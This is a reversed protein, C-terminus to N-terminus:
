ILGNLRHSLQWFDEAPEKETLAKLTLDILHKGEEDVMQEAQYQLAEVLRSVAHVDGNSARFTSLANKMAKERGPWNDEVTYYLADLIDIRDDKSLSSM